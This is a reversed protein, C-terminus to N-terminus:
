LLAVTERHRGDGLRYRQHVRERMPRCKPWLPAPEIEEVLGAAAHRDLVGELAIRWAGEEGPGFPSELLRLKVGKPLQGKSFGHPQSRAHQAGFGRRKRREGAPLGQPAVPLPIATSARLVRSM